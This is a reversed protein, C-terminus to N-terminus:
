GLKFGCPPTFPGRALMCYYLLCQNPAPKHELPKRSRRNDLRVTADDVVSPADYDTFEHYIEISSRHAMLSITLLTKRATIGLKALALRTEKPMAGRTGVVLPLVEGSTAGFREQLLPLLQSYKQIKDIRGQALYDKDEHRVPVDVVLVRERNQIVLDLKLNGGSPLRVTPEKTVAVWPQQKIAEEM